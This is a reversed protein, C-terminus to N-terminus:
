ADLLELVVLKKDFTVNTAVFKFSVRNRDDSSSLVLSVYDRKATEWQLSFVNKSLGCKLTAFHQLM